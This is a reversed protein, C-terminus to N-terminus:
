KMWIITNIVDQRDENYDFFLQDGKMIQKVSKLVLRMMGPVQKAVLNFNKKSHNVLRGPHHSEATADVCVWKGAENKMWFVYDTDGVEEQRRMAEEEGLIEGAYEMVLEGAEIVRDAFVGRGMDTTDKVLLGLKGPDSTNLVKELEAKKKEYRPIRGSRRPKMLTPVPIVAQPLLPVVLVDELVEEHEEVVMEKDVEDEDESLVLELGNIDEKEVEPQKDVEVGAQEDVEMASEHAEMEMAPEHAEIEMAPEHAEMERLRAELIGVSERWEENRRKEAEFKEQLQEIEFQLEAVLQQKEREVRELQEELEQVAEEEDAPNADRVQRDNAFAPKRGRRGM